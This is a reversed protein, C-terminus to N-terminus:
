KEVLTITGNDVLKKVFSWIARPDVKPKVHTQVVRVLEARKIAPDAEVAAVIFEKAKVHWSKNGRATGSAKGAERRFDTLAQKIVAAIQREHDAISQAIQAKTM